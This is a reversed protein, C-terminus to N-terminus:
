AFCAVVVLVCGLVCHRDARARQAVPARVERVVPFARVHERRPKFMREVYIPDSVAANVSEAEGCVAPNTGTASTQDTIAMRVSWVSGGCCASVLQFVVDECGSHTRASKTYALTLRAM